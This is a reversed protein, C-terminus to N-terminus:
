FERVISRVIINKIKNINDTIAPGLYPRAPIRVRRTMVWQGAIQFRLYNATRPRIIGGLEHIRGYIVDTFIWGAVGGPQTRLGSRISRRLHGSRAKLHGPKGFSAKAAREGFFMANRVGALLGRNLREPLSAIYRQDDPRFQFTARLM